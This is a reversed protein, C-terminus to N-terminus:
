GSSRPFFRPVSRSAQRHHEQAWSVANSGCRSRGSLNSLQLGAAFADTSRQTRLLLFAGEHVRYGQEDRGDHSSSLEDRSESIRGAGGACAIGGRCCLLGDRRYGGAEGAEEGCRWGRRDGSCEREVTSESSSRAFVGASENGREEIGSRRGGASRGVGGGRGVARERGNARGGHNEEPPVDALIGEGTRGHSRTTRCDDSSLHGRM